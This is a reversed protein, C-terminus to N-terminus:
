EGLTYLHGKSQSVQRTIMNRQPGIWSPSYLLSWNTQSIWKNFSRIRLLLTPTAYQLLVAMEQFTCMLFTSQETFSGQMGGIRDLIGCVVIGSTDDVVLYRGGPRINALNMMQSLTDIRIDRIRAKDKRFWYECINYITPEMVTFSKFYRPDSNLVYAAAITDLGWKEEKRKRYKEKSYETKLAFKAHQEIQM